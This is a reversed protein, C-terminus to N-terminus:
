PKEGRAQSSGVTFLTSIIIWVNIKSKSLFLLGSKGDIIMLRDSYCYFAELSQIFMNCQVMCEWFTNRIKQYICHSNQGLHKLWKM